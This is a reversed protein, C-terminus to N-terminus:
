LDSCGVVFNWANFFNVGLLKAHLAYYPTHLITMHSEVSVRRLYVSASNDELLRQSEMQISFVTYECVICTLVYM